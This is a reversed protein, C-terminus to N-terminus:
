VWGKSSRQFRLMGGIADDGDSVPRRQVETTTSKPRSRSAPFLTTPSTRRSASNEDDDYAFQRQVLDERQVQLHRRGLSGLQRGVAQVFNRDLQRRHRLRGHHVALNCRHCERGLSGQRGVEESTSDYAVVGIVRGLGAHVERRRRCAACLQRDISRPSAEDGSSSGEELAFRRSATAPLRLLVPSTPTSAATYSVLTDNIVNGAYGIFTDFASEDKGVRLGGLQIWAFNLPAATPRCILQASTKTTIM